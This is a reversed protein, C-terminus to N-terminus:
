QNDTPFNQAKFVVSKNIEDWNEYIFSEVCYDRERVLDERQIKQESDVKISAVRDIKEKMYPWCDRIAWAWWFKVLADAAKPSTESFAMLNKFGPGETEEKMAHIIGYSLYFQHLGSDEAEQALAGHGFSITLTAVATLSIAKIKIEEGM